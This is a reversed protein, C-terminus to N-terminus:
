TRNAQPEPTIVAEPVFGKNKTTNQVEFVVKQMKHSFIHLLETIENILTTKKQKNLCIRVDTCTM